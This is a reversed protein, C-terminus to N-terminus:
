LTNNFKRYIGMISLSSTILGLSFSVLVSWLPVNESAVDSGALFSIGLYSLYFVILGAVFSFPTYEYWESILIDKELSEFHALFINSAIRETATIKRNLFSSLMSMPTVVLILLLIIPIVLLWLDIPAIVLLFCSISTTITFSSFFIDRFREKKDGQYYNSRFRREWRLGVYGFFLAAGVLLPSLLVKIVEMKVIM